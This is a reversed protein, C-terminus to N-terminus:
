KEFNELGLAWAGGFEIFDSKQKKKKAKNHNKLIAGKKKALFLTLM